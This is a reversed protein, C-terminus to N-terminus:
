WRYYFRSIKDTELSTYKKDPYMSFLFETRIMYIDPCLPAKNFLAMDVRLNRPTNEFIDITKILNNEKVVRAKCAVTGYDPNYELYKVKLRINDEDLIDDSDPWILYKGKVYQLGTNIAATQDANDKYLYFTYGRELNIKM